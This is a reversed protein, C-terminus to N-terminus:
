SRLLMYLGFVALGVGFLMIFPSSYRAIVIAKKLGFLKVGLRGKLSWKAQVLYSTFEQSLLMRVGLYVSLLGFAILPITWYPM